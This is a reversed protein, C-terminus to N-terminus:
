DEQEEEKRAKNVRESKNKRPTIFKRETRMEREKAVISNFFCWSLPPPRVTEQSRSGRVIKQKERTYMKVIIIQRNLQRAYSGDGVVLGYVSMKQAIM